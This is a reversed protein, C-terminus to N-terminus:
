NKSMKTALVFGGIVSAPIGVIATTKWFNKRRIARKESDITSDLLEQSLRAVELKQNYAKQREEASAAQIGTLREYDRIIVNRISDVTECNVRLAYEYLMRDFSVVFMYKLNNAAKLSDAQAVTMKQSWVVAPLLM